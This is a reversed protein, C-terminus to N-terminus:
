CGSARLTQYPDVRTGNPGGLRIEFHLHPTTANGSQGVHGIIGGRAVSRDGGVFDNLHAYYHTNGDGADLYVVNGGAGENPVFHVTGAKVARITTGMAVLMDIGYHFGAGRPGYDDTYQAGHV